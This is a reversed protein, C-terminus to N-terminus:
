KHFVGEKCDSCFSFCYQRKQKNKLIEKFKETDIIDKLSQAFANGIVAMEHYPIYCCLLTDGNSLVRFQNDSNCEIPQFNILGEFAKIYDSYNLKQLTSQDCLNKCFVSIKQARFPKPLNLTSSTTLVLLTYNTYHSFRTQLMTLNKLFLDEPISMNDERESPYLGGTNIVINSFSSLLFEIQAGTLERSFNTTLTGLHFAQKLLTVIEFFDPNLLPEGFGTISITCSSVYPKHLEIFKKCNELTLFQKPYEPPYHPVFCWPCSANCIGFALDLNIDWM